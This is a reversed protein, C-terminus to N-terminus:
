SLEKGRKRRERLDEIKKVREEKKADKIGRRREARNIGKHTKTLKGAVKSVPVTPESKFDRKVM